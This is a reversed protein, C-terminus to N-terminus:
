GVYRIDHKNDMMGSIVKKAAREIVNYGIVQKIVLSILQFIRNVYLKSIHYKGM